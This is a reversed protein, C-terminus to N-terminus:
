YVLFYLHVIDSKQQPSCTEYIQSTQLTTHSVNNNHILQGLLLMYLSFLLPGLISGQPVGCTLSMKDSVCKVIEVFDEQKESYFTELRQLVIGSLSLTRASTM